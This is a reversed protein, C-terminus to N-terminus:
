RVAGNALGTELATGVVILCDCDKLYDKVTDVQYYHQSYIEDFFMCHPKMNAGCEKCKPVGDTKKNEYRFKPGQYFLKSHEKTQDSCHMYFVNGHIEHIHDTFAFDRTGEKKKKNCLVKSEKLV